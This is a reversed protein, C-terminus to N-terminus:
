KLPNLLNDIYQFFQSQFILHPDYKRKLTIWSHIEPYAHELQKKTYHLRYPLYFTGGLALADQIVAQTFKKMGMEDDPAKGQSFLCVLGYCDTKGYPLFSRNDKQVDRLTINLLNIKHHM